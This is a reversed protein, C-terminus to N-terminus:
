LTVNTVHQRVKNIFMNHKTISSKKKRTGYKQLFFLNGRKEKKDSFETGTM